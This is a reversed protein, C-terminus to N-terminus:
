IWGRAAYYGIKSIEISLEIFVPWRKWWFSIRKTHDPFPSPVVELGAKRFARYARFAHYDSLLLIKRGPTDKLLRATNIANEHTSTSETEVQVVSEPVGQCVLFDKMPKAVPTTDNQAGGSIVIERFGGQRWVWTGYVSRWYSSEGIMGGVTDSGLVILVDGKPDNWHGSLIRLISSDIAPAISVAVFAFGLATLAHLIYRFFRSV